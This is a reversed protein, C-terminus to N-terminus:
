RIAGSKSNRYYDGKSLIKELFLYLVIFLYRSGMEKMVLKSAGKKRNEWSIPLVAYSFGRIIAKLPIEVTLNFHVSLFPQVHEIVERKYMKFANTMDNYPVNFLHKIFTNAVRNIVLKFFPYKEVRSGKMFRSGFACEFGEEIKRFYRVIDSPSDSGDAMVISVADGKFVAMGERVALGFGPDSNRSIYSFNNYKEKMKKCVSETCDTSNDNIVLVDFNINVKNLEDVINSVTEELCDEENHAPIVLSLNM